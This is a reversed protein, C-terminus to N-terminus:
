ANTEGKAQTTPCDLPNVGIVACVALFEEIKFNRKGNLSASLKQYSFDPLGCSVIIHKQKIGKKKIQEAIWAEPTM